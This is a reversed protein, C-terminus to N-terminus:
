DNKGIRAPAEDVYDELPLVPVKVVEYGNHVEATVMKDLDVNFVRNKKTADEGLDAKIQKWINTDTFNLAVGAGTLGATNATKAGKFKLLKKAEVFTALIDLVEERTIGKRSVAEKAEENDSAMLGEILADYNQDAIALKDKASLREKCTQAVGHSDFEQVGKAIAWQDLESHIYNNAEISGWELGAEEVAAVLDPHKAAIAKQVDDANTLFSIYDGAQINLAKSVAPTIRFGGETSVAIVQPEANANRVGSQVAKFGFSLNMKKM